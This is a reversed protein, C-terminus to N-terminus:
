HSLILECLERIAGHGGRSSLVLDAASLAEPYADAVAVGCGAARLCDVDNIDNGVFLVDNWALARDLLWKDLVTYKDDVGHIVDLKLKRARARVVPNVESSLVLLHLDREQLRSIGKGDGRNCLVAEREDEFVFVRNDTFVGDFDFVVASLSAPLADTSRAPRHLDSLARARQLDAMTDIEIAREPPVEHVVVRGFFRHKHTRFGDTRVAYV